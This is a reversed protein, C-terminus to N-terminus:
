VNNSSKIKNNSSPHQRNSIGNVWNIYSQALIQRQTHSPELSRTLNFEFHEHTKGMICVIGAYEKSIMSNFVSRLTNGIGIYGLKWQLGRLISDNRIHCKKKKKQSRLKKSHKPILIVFLLWWTYYTNEKFFFNDVFNM